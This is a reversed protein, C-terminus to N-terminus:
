YNAQILVKLRKREKVEEQDSKLHSMSQIDVFEEEDNELLSM